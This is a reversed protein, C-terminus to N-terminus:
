REGLMAAALQGAARRERDQQDQRGNGARQGPERQDVGDIQRLNLFKLM